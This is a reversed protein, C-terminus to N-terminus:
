FRRLSVFMQKMSEAGNRNNKYWEDQERSFVALKVFNGCRRGRWGHEGCAPAPSALVSFICSEGTDPRAAARSSFSRKHRTTHAIGRRAANHFVHLAIGDLDGHDGFFHPAAQTKQQGVPPFRPERRRAQQGPEPRQVRRVGTPFLRHAQQFRVFLGSLIQGGGHRDHLDPFQSLALHRRSRGLPEGFEEAALRARILHGGVAASQQGTFAMETKLRRVKLNKGGLRHFFTQGLLFAPFLTFGEDRAAHSKETQEPIHGAFFARQRGGGGGTRLARGFPGRRFHRLAEPFQQAGPHDIRFALLVFGEPAHQGFAQGVHGMQGQLQQDGPAFQGRM